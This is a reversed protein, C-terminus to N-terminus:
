AANKKVVAELPTGNLLAEMRELISDRSWEDLARKRGVKGMKARLAADAALTAIADAFAKADDPPM